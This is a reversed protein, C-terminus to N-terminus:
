KSALEIEVDRYKTRAEDSLQMPSCTTIIPIKVWAKVNLRKRKESFRLTGQEIKTKNKFKLTEQFRPMPLFRPLRTTQNRGRENLHAPTPFQFKGGSFVPNCPLNESTSSKHRLHDSNRGKRNQCRDGGYKCSLHPIFASYRKTKRM